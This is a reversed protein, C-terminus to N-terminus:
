ELKVLSFSLSLPDVGAPFPRLVDAGGKSVVFLVLPPFFPSGAISLFVPDISDTTTFVPPFIFIKKM